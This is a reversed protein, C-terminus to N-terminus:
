MLNRVFAPARRAMYTCIVPPPSKLGVSWWSKCNKAVFTDNAKQTEAWRLFSDVSDQEDAEISALDIPLDVVRKLGKSCSLTEGASILEKAKTVTPVLYKEPINFPNDESIWVNNAGTVQGRHVRFIEGLEIYGAPKPQSPRILTLWRSASQIESLPISKGGVLGDLMNVDDIQCLRAATNETGVSFCTIAATSIADPFVKLKPELVQLSSIMLKKTLLTRLTAGYNTDLWEASTM